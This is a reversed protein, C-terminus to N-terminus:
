DMDLPWIPRRVNRDPFKKSEPLTISGADVVIVERAIASPRV